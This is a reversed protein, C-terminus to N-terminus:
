EVIKEIVVDDLWVSGGFSDELIGFYLMAKAAGPVATFTSSVYTWDSGYPTALPPASAVLLLGVAIMFALRQAFNALRNRGM